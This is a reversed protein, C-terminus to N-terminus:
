KAAALVRGTATLGSRDAPFVVGDGNHALVASAGAARANALWFAVAQSNLGQNRYHDNDVEAGVEGLVYPRRLLRKWDPLKPRDDYVHVDYYDVADEYLGVDPSDNWYLETTDSITFWAGPAACKATRYLDRIWGHVTEQSYSPSVPDEAPPKSLGGAPSLSNYAENFLDWAVITSRSGFRRLFEHTARLYNRRMERHKGDLAQFRFNGPSSVEEQDFLVAIVKLGRADVMDLAEGFNRLAVEDFRVFGRREDWVMAQDIGIFLRLVRGLDRSAIFDLDAALSPKAAPWGEHPDSRLWRTGLWDGGTALPEGYNVGKFSPLAFTGQAQAPCPSVPADNSADEGGFPGCGSCLFALAAALLFRPARAALSGGPM